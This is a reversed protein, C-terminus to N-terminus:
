DKSNLEELVKNPVNEEKLGWSNEIVESTINAAMELRTVRDFLYFLEVPSLKSKLCETMQNLHKSTIDKKEIPVM